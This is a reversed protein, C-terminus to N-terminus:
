PPPLRCSHANKAVLSGVAQPKASIRVKATRQLVAMLGYDTRQTSTAHSSLNTQWSAVVRPMTTWQLVTMLGHDTWQERTAQLYTTTQNEAGVMPKVTRQLMAMM